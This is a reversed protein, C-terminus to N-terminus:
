KKMERFMDFQRQLILLEEKKALSSFQESMRQMIDKMKSIEEKMLYAQKKLEQIDEFTSEREEILNKGILLIRDKLLRQKEELDKMRLNIDSFVQNGANQPYPSYEEMFLISIM